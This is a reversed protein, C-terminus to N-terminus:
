PQPDPPADPTSAQQVVDGDVACEIEDPSAKSSELSAKAEKERQRNAQDTLYRALAPAASGFNREFLDVTDKPVTLKLEVTVPADAM